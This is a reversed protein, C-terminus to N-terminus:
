DRRAALFYNVGADADLAFVRTLPNYGLGTVDTMALGAARCHAALESPTIFKAYEHTGRPLLRLVYEAGVIAFLFSKPNRNITSFVVTGGPKALGACARVTSAPDPVHELMEMCTVVDYTGPEAVAADEASVLRYDVAVGSELLHLRAVKLSKEGLDIGTVKAGKAAMSEALIGGGCGVDIVRKGALGGAIRDIHALRLPNMRHLPGFMESEPDWWRHALAGFKALEAQDVNGAAADPTDAIM